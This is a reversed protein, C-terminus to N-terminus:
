PPRTLKSNISNVMTSEYVRTLRFFRQNVPLGTARACEIIVSWDLAYAGSMSVRVQSDCLTLCEWVDM